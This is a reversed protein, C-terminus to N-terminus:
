YLPIKPRFIFPVAERYGCIFIADGREITLFGVKSKSFRVATVLIPISTHIPARGLRTGSRKYWPITSIRDSSVFTLVWSESDNM